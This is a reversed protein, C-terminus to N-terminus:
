PTTLVSFVHVDEPVFFDALVRREESFADSEGDRLVLFFPGALEDESFFHVERRDEVPEKPLL